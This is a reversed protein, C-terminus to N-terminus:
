NSEYTQVKTKMSSIRDQLSHLSSLALSAPVSAATHELARGTGWDETQEEQMDRFCVFEFRPRM